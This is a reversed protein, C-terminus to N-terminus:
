ELRATSGTSSQVKQNVVSYRGAFPVKLQFVRMPDKLNGPQPGACAAFSKEIEADGLEIVSAWFAVPVLVMEVATTVPTASVILRETLPTGAPALALKLGVETVVPPLEVSVTFEPVAAPPVYVSVTVPVEGLMVCEVVTVSVTLAGGGGGSKPMEIEGALLVTAAPPDTGYVTVVEAKFPLVCLMESETDPRGAPTVPENLGAVTVAPPLEVKVSVAAEVAAAVVAVNVAVPVDPVTLWLAVADTVTVAAM